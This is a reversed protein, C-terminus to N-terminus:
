YHWRRGVLLCITGTPKWKIMSKFLLTEEDDTWPDNLVPPKNVPTEPSTAEAAQKPQPTSAQSVRARKRPPM